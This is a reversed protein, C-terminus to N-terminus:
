TGRAHWSNAIQRVKCPLDFGRSSMPVLGVPQRMQEAEESLAANGCVHFRLSGAVAENCGPVAAHFDAVGESVGMWAPRRMCVHLPVAAPWKRRTRLIGKQEIVYKWQWGCLSGAAGRRRLEAYVPNEALSW